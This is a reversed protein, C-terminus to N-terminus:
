FGTHGFTGRSVVCLTYGCSGHVTRYPVSGFLWLPDTRQDEQAQVAEVSVPGREVTRKQRAQAGGDALIESACGKERWAEPDPRQNRQDGKPHEKGEQLSPAGGIGM